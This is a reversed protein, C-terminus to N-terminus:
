HSSSSSSKESDITEEQALYKTRVWLVKDSKLREGDSRGVCIADIELLAKNIDFDTFNKRTNGNIWAKLHSFTFASLNTSSESTKTEAFKNMLKLKLTEHSWKDKLPATILKSAIKDITGPTKNQNEHRAVKNVVKGAEYNTKADKDMDRARTAMTPQPPTKYTIGNPRGHTSM